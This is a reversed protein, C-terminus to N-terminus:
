APSRLSTKSRTRRPARPRPPNTAASALVLNGSASTAVLDVDVPGGEPVIVAVVLDRFIKSIKSSECSLAYDDSAGAPFLAWNGPADIELADLCRDHKPSVCDDEDVVGDCDDDINNGCREAVLSSVSPDDDDCDSGGECNWVPDGDGDADRPTHTCSQTAEVCRDITCPDFDTCSVPEGPRCGLGPVCQEEGDCYIGNECSSHDPEFRCRGVELDCRDVTCDIGDDCQDEDSCPGGWTPDPDVDGDSGSGADPGEGAAGAGSGDDFPSPASDSGCGAFPVSIALALFVARGLLATSSM